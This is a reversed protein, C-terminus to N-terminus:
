GPRLLIVYKQLSCGNERGRQDSLLDQKVDVVSVM